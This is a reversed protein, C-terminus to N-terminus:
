GHKAERNSEIDGMMSFLNRVRGSIHDPLSPLKAVTPPVGDEEDVFTDEQEDEGQDPASAASNGRFLPGPRILRDDIALIRGDRQVLALLAVQQDDAALDGALRRVNRIDPDPSNHPVNLFAAASARVTMLREAISDSLPGGPDLTGNRTGIQREVEDLLAVSASRVAFFRAGAELDQWHELDITAPRETWERGAGEKLWDRM